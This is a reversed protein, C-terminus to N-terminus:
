STNLTYSHKAQMYTHAGCTHKTDCLDSPLLLAVPVPTVSNHAVVHTRPALGPDETALARIWQTMEGARTHYKQSNAKQLWSLINSTIMVCFPFTLIKARHKLGAEM